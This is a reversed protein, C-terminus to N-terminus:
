KSIIGNSNALPTTSSLLQQRYKYKKTGDMFNTVVCSLRTPPYPITRYRTKKLVDNLRCRDVARNFPAIFLVSDFSTKSVLLTPKSVLDGVTSFLYM